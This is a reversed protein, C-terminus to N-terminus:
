VSVVRVCTSRSGAVSAWLRCSLHFRQGHDHRAVGAYAQEFYNPASIGLSNLTDGVWQSETNLGHEIPEYGTNAVVSTLDFELRANPLRQAVLPVGATNAASAGSFVNRYNELTIDPTFDPPKPQFWM